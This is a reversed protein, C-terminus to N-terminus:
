ATRDLALPSLTAAAEFSVGLDRDVRWRVKVRHARGRSPLHLEFEDPLENAVSCSVRAGSPSLDRVACDATLGGGYSVTGALLTKVRITKRREQM